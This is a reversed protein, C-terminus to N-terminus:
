INITIKMKNRVNRDMKSDEDAIVFEFNMWQSYTMQLNASICCENYQM